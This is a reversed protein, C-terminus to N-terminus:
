YSMRRLVYHILSRLGGYLPRVLESPIRGHRGRGDPSEVVGCTRLDPELGHEVREGIGYAELDHTEEGAQRVALLRRARGDVERDGLRGRGVVEAHETLGSQDPLDVPPRGLHADYAARVELREEGAQEVGHQRGVGGLPAPEASRSRPGSSAAPTAASSPTGSRPSSTAHRADRPGTITVFTTAARAARERLWAIAVQAPAAGIEAAVGLVADVTATKQASTETHVLRGWESLRGADSDRYKGTLLGGGLPAWLAAGLGLSEAM